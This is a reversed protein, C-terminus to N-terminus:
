SASRRPMRCQSLLLQFCAHRNRRPGINPNELSPGVDASRHEVQWSSKADRSGISTATTFLFIKFSKSTLSNADSKGLQSRLALPGQM